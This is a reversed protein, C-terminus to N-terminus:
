RGRIENQAGIRGQAPQKKLGQESHEEGSRRTPKKRTMQSEDWIDDERHLKEPSNLLGSDCNDYQGRQKWEAYQWQSKTRKGWFDLIQM